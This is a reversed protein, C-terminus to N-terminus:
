RRGELARLLAVLHLDHSAVPRMEPAYRGAEYDTHLKWAGSAASAIGQYKGLHRGTAAYEARAQDPTLYRGDATVQPINVEVGGDEGIGMTHVTSRKGPEDPNPISPQGYLDINGPVLLGHSPM